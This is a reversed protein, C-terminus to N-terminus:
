NTHTQKQHGIWSYIITDVAQWFGVSVIFPVSLVSLGYVFIGPFIDWSWPEITLTSNWETTLIIISAHYQYKIHLKFYNSVGTSITEFDIQFCEDKIIHIMKFPFRLCIWCINKRGQHTVYTGIGVYAHLNNQINAFVYYPHPSNIHLHPHWSTRLHGTKTGKKAKNGSSPGQLFGYPWLGAEHM